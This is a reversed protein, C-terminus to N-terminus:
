EGLEYKTRINKRVFAADLYGSNAKTKSMRVNISVEPKRKSIVMNNVIVGASGNDGTASFSVSIYSYGKSLAIEASRLLALDHAREQTTKTNGRFTVQYNDDALQTESYGDGGNSAVYGTACGALILSLLSFAIIRM